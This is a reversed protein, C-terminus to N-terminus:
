SRSGPQPVGAGTARTDALKVNKGLLHSLSGTDGAGDRRDQAADPPRCGQSFAGIAAPRFAFLREGVALHHLRTGHRPRHLRLCLVSLEYLRGRQLARRRAGGDRPAAEKRRLGL